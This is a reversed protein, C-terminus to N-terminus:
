RGDLDDLALGAGRFRAADAFDGRIFARELELQFGEMVTHHCPLGGGRAGFVGNMVERQALRDDPIYLVWPRDCIRARDRGKRRGVLLFVFILLLLPIM